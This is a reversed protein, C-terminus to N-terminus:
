LTSQRASIMPGRARQPQRTSMHISRGPAEWTSSMDATNM